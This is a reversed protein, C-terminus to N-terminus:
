QLPAKGPVTVVVPRSVTMVGPTKIQIEGSIYQSDQGEAATECNSELPEIRIAVGDVARGASELLGGGRKHCEYPLWTAASIETM